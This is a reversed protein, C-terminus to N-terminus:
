KDDGGAGMVDMMEDPTMATSLVYDGAVFGDESYNSLREQIYFLREERVLGKEYLQKAIGKFDMGDTITVNIETGPEESIAPEGYIRVGYQYASVAFYYILMVAWTIVYYEGEFYGNKRSSANADAINKAVSNKKSQHKAKKKNSM